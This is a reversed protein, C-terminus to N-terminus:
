AISTGEYYKNVVGDNTYHMYVMVSSFFLVVIIGQLFIHEACTIKFPLDSFFMLRQIINEGEKKICASERKFKFNWPRADSSLDILLVLMIHWLLAPNNLHM